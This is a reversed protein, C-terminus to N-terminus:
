QLQWPQPYTSTLDDQVFSPLTEGAQGSKRLSYLFPVFCYLLYSPPLALNSYNQSPFIHDKLNILPATSSRLGETVLQKYCLCM